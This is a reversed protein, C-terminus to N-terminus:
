EERKIEGEPKQPKVMLIPNSVGHLLNAAVSGYVLRSLGSRGHTAMVILDVPHKSAYEVIEDVAKGEIVESRVSINSAKLREEVRNLYDTSKQKRRTTEQQVYDGWNLSVGSIEPGYYSPISPPESIKLLVVDMPETGRQKALAEVHPLVATEAIESGDLPVLMTKTQLKDLLDEGTDGARVLWVPIKSSILVKSAVSGITWRRLGSHGHAAMMIIDIENEKAEAYRLIEDAPYGVVMEGRVELPKEVTGPSTSEQVERARRRVTIAAHRIYAKQMPMFASASPSSVHFMVIDIDLRGALEEAYAFVVEALESGDLPVLMRRYM